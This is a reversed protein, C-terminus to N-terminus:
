TRVRHDHTATTVAHNVLHEPLESQEGHWRVWQPFLAKALGTLPDEPVWDDAFMALQAEVRTPSISHWVQPVVGEMWDTALAAVAETDPETGHRDRYWDTFGTAMPEIDFDRYLDLAPPLLAAGRETTAVGLDHVRRAVRFWNNMAAQTEDGRIFTEDMDLQVLPQLRDSSRVPVPQAQKATDGVASRWAEVAQEVDDFLGPEVLAVPTTGTELDFLFAAPLEEGPYRYTAIIAIRSGYADRIQWLDGAATVKMPDRLWDPLHSRSGRLAAEAHPALHPPGLMTMGRLLRATQARGDRGAAAALHKFWNAFEPGDYHGNIVRYLEAGLLEATTQEVARPTSAELLIDAKGLM